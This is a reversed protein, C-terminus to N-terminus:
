GKLSGIMVGKVFYKQLFPYVCIIPITILMTIAARVTRPEIKTKVTSEMEFAHMDSTVDKINDLMRRLIMQLVIKNEDKIYIFCTFWDNWLSVAHWLAITALVPKIIPILIIFLIRPYGAGDILASEEIGNDITSIYTRTVLMSFVSFAQPIIYVLLNDVLGIYRNIIYSPILGGSFYLPILFFLIIIKRYKLDKKSLPYAVFLCFVVHLATGTVTRLVTVIISRVIQDDKFLYIYSSFTLKEPWFRIKLSNVSLPESFSMVMMDWFPLFISICFVAMLLLNIIDFAKDWKSKKCAM